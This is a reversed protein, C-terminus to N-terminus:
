EKRAEGDGPCSSLDGCGRCGACGSKGSASRYLGYGVGGAALVVIGIAIITEMM